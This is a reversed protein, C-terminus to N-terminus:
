PQRPERAAQRQIEHQQRQILDEDARYGQQRLHLDRCAAEVLVALNHGLRIPISIEPVSVGLVTHRSRRGSLREFGSDWVVRPAELRLILALECRGAISQAGYLRRINLIGLSRAEIFGRLLRPARGILRQRHLIFDVADDGVLQHGRTILELALESKGVGSAGTLLVGVGLVRVFVGHLTTQPASSPM